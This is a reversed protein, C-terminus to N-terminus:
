TTESAAGMLFAQAALTLVTCDKIPFKRFENITIGSARAVIAMLYSKSFENVRTENVANAASEMDGGTLSGLDVTLETYEKDQVKVPKSLKYATKNGEGILKLILENDKATEAATVKEANM